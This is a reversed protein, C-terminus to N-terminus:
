LAPDSVLEPESKYFDTKKTWRLASYGNTLSHGIWRVDVIEEGKGRPPNCLLARGLFRVWDNSSLITFCYGHFSRGSRFLKMETKLSNSLERTRDRITEASASGVFDILPFHRTSGDPLKCRSHFALEEEDNLQDVQDALWADSVETAKVQIFVRSLTMGYPKYVYRSFELDPVPRRDKFYTTLSRIPHGQNM